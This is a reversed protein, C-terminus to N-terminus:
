LLGDSSATFSKPRTLIPFKARNIAAVTAIGGLTDTAGNIAMSWYPHEEEFKKSVLGSNGYVLGRGADEFNGTLLDYGLRLNQSASLRNLNVAGGTIASLAETTPTTNRIAKENITNTFNKNAVDKWILPHDLKQRRSPTVVAAEPLNYQKLSKYWNGTIPDKVVWSVLDEDWYRETDSPTSTRWLGGSSDEFTEVGVHPDEDDKGGAYGWQKQNMM